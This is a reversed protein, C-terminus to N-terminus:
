EIAENIYNLSLLGYVYVQILPHALSFYGAVVAPVVLPIVHYVLEMIIAGVLVNAFLRLAMSFPAVFDTM